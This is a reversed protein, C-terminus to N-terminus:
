CCGRFKAESKILLQFKAAIRPELNLEVALRETDRNVLRLLMFSPLWMFAPLFLALCRVFAQWRCEEQDPLSLDVKSALQLLSLRHQSEDFSTPDQLEKLCEKRFEQWCASYKDGFEQISRATPEEESNGSELQM